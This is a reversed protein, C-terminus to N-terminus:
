YYLNSVVTHWSSVRSSCWLCGTVINSKKPNIIEVFTSELQNAKYIKLDTRPKYSLHSAILQLNQLPLSLPM